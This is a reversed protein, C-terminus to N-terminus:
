AYTDWTTTPTLQDWRLTAPQDNWRGLYAPPGLCAAGDWTLDPPVGEAIPALTSQTSASARAAGTWAYDATTTDPTDGDFYTTPVTALETISGTLYCTDGAAVQGGDARNVIAITIGTAPAACRCFTWQNAPIRTTLTTGGQNDTM